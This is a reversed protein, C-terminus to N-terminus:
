PQNAVFGVVRGEIEGFGTLINKAYDPMIEYFEHKDVVTEIIVKM